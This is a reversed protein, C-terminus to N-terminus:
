SNQLIAKYPSLKASYIVEAEEPLLLANKWSIDDKARTALITVFLELTYSAACFEKLSNIIKFRTFESDYYMRKVDKAKGYLENYYQVLCSLLPCLEKLIFKGRLDYTLTNKSNFEFGAIGMLTLSFFRRFVSKNMVHNSVAGYEKKYEDYCEELSLFLITEIIGSLENKYKQFRNELYNDSVKCIFLASQNNLESYYASKRVKYEKPLQPNGYISEYEKEAQHYVVKQTIERIRKDNEVTIIKEILRKRKIVHSVIERYAKELEEEYWKHNKKYYYLQAIRRYGNKELLRKKVDEKLSEVIDGRNSSKKVKEIIDSINIDTEFLENDKYYNVYSNKKDIEGYVLRDIEDLLELYKEQVEITSYGKAVIVDLINQKLGKNKRPNELLVDAINRMISKAAAEFFNDIIKNIESM